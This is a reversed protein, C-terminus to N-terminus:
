EDIRKRLVNAAESSLEPDKLLANLGIELATKGTIELDSKANLIAKFLTNDDVVDLVDEIDVIDNDLDIMEKRLTSDGKVKRVEFFLEEEKQVDEDGHIMAKSPDSPQVGQAFNPYFRRFNKLNKTREYRVYRHELIFVEKEGEMSNVIAEDKIRGWCCGGDMQTYCVFKGIYESM